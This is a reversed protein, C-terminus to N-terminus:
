VKFEKLYTIVLEKLLKDKNKSRELTMETQFKIVAANLGEFFSSLDSIEVEGKAQAAGATFAAKAVLNFFEKM